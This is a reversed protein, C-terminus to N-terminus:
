PHFVPGASPFFPVGGHAGVFSQSRVHLSLALFSGIALFAIFLEDYQTSPFLLRSFYPFQYSHFMSVPNSYQSASVESTGGSELCQLVFQTFFTYNTGKRLIAVIQPFIFDTSSRFAAQIMAGPRSSVHARRPSLM